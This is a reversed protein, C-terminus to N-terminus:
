GLIAAIEDASLGLAELKTTASALHSAKASAAAAKIQDATQYSTAESSESTLGAWYAQIASIQNDTPQASFWLTLDHDASNGVYNAGQNAKIWAEVASLSVPFSLWALDISYM